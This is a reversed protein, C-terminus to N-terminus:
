IPVAARGVWLRVIAGAIRVFGSCVRGPQHEISLSMSAVSRSLPMARPEVHMERPKDIHAPHMQTPTRFSRSWRIWNWLGAAFVLFRPASASRHRPPRRISDGRAEIRQAKRISRNHIGKALTPDSCTAGRCPSRRVEDFSRNRFTNRLCPSRPSHTM